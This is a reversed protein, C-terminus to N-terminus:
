LTVALAVDVCRPAGVPQRRPQLASSWGAAMSAAPTELRKRMGLWLISESFSRATWGKV